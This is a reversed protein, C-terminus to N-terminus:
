ADIRGASRKRGRPLRLTFTSGEGSRSTVDIDGGQAQALGRSLHLGLGTGQIGAAIAGQLRGFPQFLKSLDEEAIGNGSDTVDVAVWGPEERVTVTVERGEPSYKVANSVLNSLITEVLDPDARVRVRGSSVVSITRPPRGASASATAAVSRALSDMSVDRANQGRARIEMRSTTLMRDVLESMHRMRATMLPVVKAAQTPLEGLSGEELMSLYGSVLTIPARLEHSALQLFESKQRELAAMRQAHAELRDLEATQLGQARREAAYGQWVLASARAALRMIWEDQDSFGSLSNCAVLIGLPVAATRWPVALVDRAELRALMSDSRVSMSSTDGRILRLAEGAFLVRALDADGTSDLIGRQEARLLAAGNSPQHLPVLETGTLQWFGAREATVLGAVTESMKEFFTASAVSSAVHSSMQTLSDLGRRQANRAQEVLRANRLALAALLGVQHLGQLEEPVFPRDSRRSLILVAGVTEGVSLPVIATHHIALLAPALEPDTNGGEGLSGGLVIAGSTVAQLLLPQRSLWTLPYEHGVFDPPGGREYSAEVRLVDQDLSTLTCRDVDVNEAAFRVLREMIQHADGRSVLDVEISGALRPTEPPVPGPDSESTSSTL